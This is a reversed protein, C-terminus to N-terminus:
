SLRQGAPVQWFSFCITISGASQLPQVFHERTHGTEAMLPFTLIQDDFRLKGGTGDITGTIGSITEPQTVTFRVQGQTDTQCHMSFTYLSDGYDATVSADFSVTGALLRSRLAM